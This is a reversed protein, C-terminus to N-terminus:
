SLFINSQTNKMQKNRKRFNESYFYSIKEDRYRGLIALIWENNAM